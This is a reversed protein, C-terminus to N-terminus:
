RVVGTRAEPLRVIIARSCDVRGEPTITANRLCKHTHVHLMPRFLPFLGIDESMIRSVTELHRSSDEANLSGVLGSLELRIRRLYEAPSTGGVSDRVMLGLLTDMVLRPSAESYPVFEISLDALGRDHTVEVACRDRSLMDAFYRTIGDLAPHGSYLRIRSPRKSLREFLRKGRSPDFDYWRPLTTSSSSSAYLRNVPSIEGGKFCLALRSDDFRYYLSTTLEGHYNFAKGIQPVIVAVFPSPAELTNTDGAPPDVDYLTVIADLQGAAFDDRMADVDEYETWRVRDNLPIDGRLPLSYFDSGITITQLSDVEAQAIVAELGTLSVTDLFGKTPASVSIGKWSHEILGSYVIIGNRVIRFPTNEFILAEEGAPFYLRDQRLEFAPTRWEAAHLTVSVLIGVCLVLGIKSGVRM